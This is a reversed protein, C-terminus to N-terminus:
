GILVQPRDVDVREHGFDGKPLDYEAVMRLLFPTKKKPHHSHGQYQIFVSFLDPCFGKM